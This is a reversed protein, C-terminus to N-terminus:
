ERGRVGGGTGAFSQHAVGAAGPGRPGAPVVVVAGRNRHAAGAGAGPLNLDFPRGVIPYPIAQDYVYRLAPGAGAAVGGDTSSTRGQWVSFGDRGPVLFAVLGALADDVPPLPLAAARATGGALLVPIAVAGGLVVRRRIPRNEPVPTM